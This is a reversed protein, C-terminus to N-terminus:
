CVIDTCTLWAVFSPGEPECGAQNLFEVCADGVEFSFGSHECSCGALLYGLSFSTPDYKGVALHPFIHCVGSFQGFVHGIVISYDM